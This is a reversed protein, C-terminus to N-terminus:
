KGDLDTLKQKTRARAIACWIWSFFFAVAFAISAAAPPLSSDGRVRQFAEVIAIVMLIPALVSLVLYRRSAARLEEVSDSM